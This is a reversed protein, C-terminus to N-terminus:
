WPAPMTTRCGSLRCKPFGPWSRFVEGTAGQGPAFIMGVSETGPRRAAFGLVQASARDLWQADDISLLLPRAQAVEAFLGLVALGVMFRDPPSGGELGFATRLADRQPAPLIELESLMPVCVQHLAAFALEREAEVGATRIARCDAAQELTRNLLATKGIGVDGWIVMARSQGTRLDAILRDLEECESRRDLLV